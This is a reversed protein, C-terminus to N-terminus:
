KHSRIHGDNCPVLTQYTRLTTDTLIIDADTRVLQGLVQAGSRKWTATIREVHINLLWDWQCSFQPRILCCRLSRLQCHLEPHKRKRGAWCVAHVCTGRNLELFTCGVLSEAFSAQYLSMVQVDKWRICSTTWVKPMELCVRELILILLPEM